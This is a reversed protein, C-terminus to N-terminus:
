LDFPMTLYSIYAGGIGLILAIITVSKMDWSLDRMGYRFVDIAWLMIGAVVLATVTLSVLLYWGWIAPLM